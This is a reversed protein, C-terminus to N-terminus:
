GATTGTLTLGFRTQDALFRLASEKEENTLNHEELANSLAALLKLMEESLM